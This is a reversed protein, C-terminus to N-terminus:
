PLANRLRARLHSLHAAPISRVKRPRIQGPFHLALVSFCSGSASIQQFEQGIAHNSGSSLCQRTSRNFGKSQCSLRPLGAGKRRRAICLLQFGGAIAAWLPYGNGSDQQRPDPTYDLLLRAILIEHHSNM